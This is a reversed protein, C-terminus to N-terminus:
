FPPTTDLTVVGGVYESGDAPYVRYTVQGSALLRISVRDAEVSDIDQDHQIAALADSVFPLTRTDESTQAEEM